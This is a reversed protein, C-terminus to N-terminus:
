IITPNLYSFLVACNDNFVVILLVIWPHEHVPLVKSYVIKRYITQVSIFTSIITKNASEECMLYYKTM